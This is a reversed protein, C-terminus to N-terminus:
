RERRKNKKGEGKWHLKLEKFTITLVAPNQIEGHLRQKGVKIFKNCWILWAVTAYPLFRRSLKGQNM